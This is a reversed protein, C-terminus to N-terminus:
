ASIQATVINPRGTLAKDSYMVAQAFDGTASIHPNLVRAASSSRRPELYFDDSVAQLALVQGINVVRGAASKPELQV